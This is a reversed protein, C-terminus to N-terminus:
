ELGSPLRPFLSEARAMLANCDTILNHLETASLRTVALVGFSSLTFWIANALALQCLYLDPDGHIKLVRLFAPNNHKFGCLFSYTEYEEDVRKKDWGRVGGSVNVVSRVSPTRQTPSWMLFDSVYKEDAGIYTLTHAQEFINAAASIAQLGHGTRSLIEVARLEEGLRRTLVREVTVQKSPEANVLEPHTAISAVLHHAETVLSLLAQLHVLQRHQWQAEIPEWYRSM